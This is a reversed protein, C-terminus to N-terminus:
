LQAVQTGNIYVEADEDHHMLLAPKAPIADLKFAKRLFINNTSWTTGIRAGPTSRTGFGGFGEKWGSDDFDVKRWGEVPRRLTYRWQDVIEQAHLATGILTLVALTSTTTRIM